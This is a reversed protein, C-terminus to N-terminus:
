WNYVGIFITVKKEKLVIFHVSNNLITTGGIFEKIKSVKGTKGLNGECKYM